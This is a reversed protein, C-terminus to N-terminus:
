QQVVSTQTFLRQYDKPVGCTAITVSDGPKSGPPCAVVFNAGGAVVDFTEGPSIGPPIVVNYMGTSSYLHESGDLAPSTEKYLHSVQPLSQGSTALKSPSKEKVDGCLAPESLLHPQAMTTAGAGMSLTKWENTDRLKMGGVSKTEDSWIQRGTYANDIQKGICWM